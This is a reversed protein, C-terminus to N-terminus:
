SGAQLFAAIAAVAAALNQAETRGSSKRPKLSHDGDEIWHLRIGPALAYGEVDAPGGFPDRTGQVILAPTRLLRLHSTRKEVAWAAAGPPRFPYGLCVLGLAGLEDAVMSAIRGGMSKGGIWLRPGGGLAAVAAAWALRLAPERDPGRRVGSERRERMYSFEFRAVRVGLAGLGAAVAAMFPSDMAAGAGHALVLLPGAAPGDFLFPPPAGGGDAGAADAANAGGVGIGGAGSAAASPPKSAAV